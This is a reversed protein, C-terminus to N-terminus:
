LSGLLLGELDTKIVMAVALAVLFVVGKAWTPLRRGVFWGLAYTVIPALISGVVVLWALATLDFGLYSFTYVMNTVGTAVWIGSLLAFVVSVVLAPRTLRPASRHGDVSPAEVPHGSVSKSPVSNRSM